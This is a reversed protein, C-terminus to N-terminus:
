TKQPKATPCPTGKPDRDFKPQRRRRLWAGPGELFGLVEWGYVQRRLGFPAVLLRYLGHAGCGDREGAVLTAAVAAAHDPALGVAQLKTIALNRVQELTMHVGSLEM